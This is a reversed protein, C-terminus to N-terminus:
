WRLDNEGIYRPSRKLQARLRAADGGLHHSGSLGAALPQRQDVGGPRRGSNNETGKGVKQGRYHTVM